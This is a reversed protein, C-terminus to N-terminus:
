GILAYSFTRAATSSAHTVTFTSNEVDRSSVFMGSLAGAANASLPTFMVLTDTGIKEPSLTVTTSVTSTGLEFSGTNNTKGNQLSGIIVKIQYLQEKIDANSNIQPQIFKENTM